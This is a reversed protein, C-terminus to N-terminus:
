WEQYPALHDLFITLKEEEEPFMAWFFVKKSTGKYLAGLVGCEMIVNFIEPSQIFCDITLSKDYVILLQLPHSNGSTTQIKVIFKQRSSRKPKPGTGIGKLHSGFTRQTIKGPGVFHIIKVTVSYRSKLAVCLPKHSPWHNQQCAKCCYSAVHCTPCKRLRRVEDGSRRCFTCGTFLRQGVEIPHYMGEENNFERNASLIPPKSYIENEGPPLDLDLAAAFEDDDIRRSHKTAKYELWPGSHDRIINSELHIRGSYNWGIFIGGCKNGSIVNGTITASTRLQAQIGWFGNEFIKNNSILLCSNQDLSLGFPRNHHVDNGRIIIKSTNHYVFIGQQANEFIKNDSVDCEGANPGILIGHYGNNFIRNGSAVLKGSKRAELGAQHNKYVVCKRVELFAGERAVLAGGGGCDHIVCNEILASSGQLIQVGPHGGVGSISQPDGFKGTRDCVPKGVSSAVCGAGGNCEPFDECSANGGSIECYNLHITSEKGECVLAINGRPFAVNEFYCSALSVTCRETCTLAVRQGLGVIQLDTLVVFDKLNYEGEHLLMTENGLTTMLAFTLQAENKIERISHTSGESCMKCFTKNQLLSSDFHIAVALAARKQGLLHRCGSEVLDHLAWAKRQLGKSYHPNLSLCKQCDDLAEQPQGLKLYCLARNSFLRYDGAFLCIATSYLELAEDFKKSKVALNGQERLQDAQEREREIQSFEGEDAAPLQRMCHSILKYDRDKLPFDIFYHPVKSGVESSSNQLNVLFELKLEQVQHAKVKEQSVSFFIGAENFVRVSEETYLLTHVSEKHKVSFSRLHEQLFTAHSALKGWLHLSPPNEVGFVADEVFGGCVEAPSRTNVLARHLAHIACSLVEYETEKELQSRIVEQVLRHVSFSNTRYKQFLSFKTLLSVIEAQDWLDYHAASSDKRNLGDNILEYPIDDPGLFACVQMVLTPAGGLGVEESIRSIHDFNLMWTTHVALRAPSTNEVLNRAKRKKLLLLKQKQYKTVYDKISQNLCRIYAGAQDLALPLGGLERVLKRIDSDEGGAKGTRMQLFQIGEEETLCRLEICCQEEIGTEEGVEAMERRTTIIIHGRAAHQWHGTLLRRMDTSMEIEDLNDVVLCWLGDCRRLWDLTRTLLDSFEQEFTGMQRAMESFSRQFLTNSEGSIWFIGGPYVEEYRWLFEVALSTKGVGGLGCIASHVCGNRTNKLQAAIAELESDRGCFCLNRSPVQVIKADVPVNLCGEELAKVRSDLWTQEIKLAGVESTLGAQEDKVSSVTTELDSQRDELQSINEESIDQCKELKKLDSSIDGIAGSIEEQKELWEKREEELRKEIDAIRKDFADIEDRITQLTNCIKKAEDTSTSRINEVEKELNAVEVSIIKVLDKDVPCGMCLKLGILLCVFNRLKRFM